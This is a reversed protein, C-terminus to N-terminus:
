QLRRAGDLRRWQDVVDGVASRWIRQISHVTPQCTFARKEHSRALGLSMVRLTIAVYALAAIGDM